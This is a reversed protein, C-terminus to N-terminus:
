GLEGRPLYPMPNQAFVQRFERLRRRIVQLNGLFRSRGLLVSIAQSMRFQPANGPVGFYELVRKIDPFGRANLPTIAEEHIDKLFRFILLRGRLTNRRPDRTSRAAQSTPGDNAQDLGCEASLGM